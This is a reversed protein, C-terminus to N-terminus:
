TTGPARRYSAFLDPPPPAPSLWAIAISIAGLLFSLFIAWLAWEPGTVEGPGILDNGPAATAAKYLMWGTGLAGGFSLLITWLKGFFRDRPERLRDWIVAFAALGLGALPVLYLPFQPLRDPEAERAIARGAELVTGAAGGGALQGSTSQGTAPAPQAGPAVTPIRTPLTLGGASSAAGSGAGGTAPAVTPVRTPLTLGGSSAGAGAAVTPVRTPLTLGGAGAAAGSAAGSAGSAGSAGPVTGPQLAAFSAQDVRDAAEGRALSLGTLAEDGINPLKASVWPQYFLLMAVVGCAAAIYRAIHNRTLALRQGQQMSHVGEAIM